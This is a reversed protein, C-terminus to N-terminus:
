PRQGLHRIQAEDGLWFEVSKSAGVDILVGPERQEGIHAPQVREDGDLAGARPVEARREAREVDDRVKEEVLQVNGLAAEVIGVAVDEERRLAVVDRPQVRCEERQTDHRLVPQEAQAAEAAEVPMRVDAYGPDLRAGAREPHADRLPTSDREGLALEAAVTPDDDHGAVPLQLLALVPLRQLRGGVLAQAPEPDDDIAVLHLRVPPRLLDDRQAVELRLEPRESPVDLRDVAVVVGRQPRGEPAETVTAVCRLRQDRLRDLPFTDGEHLVRTREGVATARVAPVGARGGVLRECAGDGLELLSDRLSTRRQADLRGRQIGDLWVSTGTPELALGFRAGARPHPRGCGSAFRRFVNDLRVALRQELEPRLATVQDDEVRVKGRVAARTRELDGVRVAEDLAPDGLLVHHGGRRSHRAM